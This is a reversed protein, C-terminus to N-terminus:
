LRVFLELLVRLCRLRVEMSKSLPSQLLLSWVIASVLAFLELNRCFKVFLTLCLLLRASLLVDVRTRVPAVRKLSALLWVFFLICKLFLVLSSPFSTLIPQVFLLTQFRPAFRNFPVLSQLVCTSVARLRSCLKLLHLSHSPPARHILCGHNQVRPPHDM